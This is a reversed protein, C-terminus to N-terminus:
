FLVNRQPRQTTRFSDLQSREWPRTSAVREGGLARTSRCEERETPKAAAKEAISM